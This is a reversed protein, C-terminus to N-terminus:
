PKVMKSIYPGELAALARAIVPAELGTATELDGMRVENKDELLKVVADLVPLDRAAWTDDM